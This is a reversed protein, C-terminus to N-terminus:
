ERELLWTTYNLGRKGNLSKDDIALATEFCEKAEGTRGMAALVGGKKCISAIDTPALEVAKEFSALAKDLM